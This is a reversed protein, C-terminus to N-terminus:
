PEMAPIAPPQPPRPTIVINSPNVVNITATYITEFRPYGVSVQIDFLVEALPFLHSHQPAFVATGDANDTIGTGSWTIYDDMENIQEAPDFALELSAFLSEVDDLHTLSLNINTNTTCTSPLLVDAQLSGTNNVGIEVFPDGSGTDGGFSPYVIMTQEACISCGSEYFGEGFGVGGGNQAQTCYAVFHQGPGMIFPDISASYGDNNDIMGAVSSFFQGNLNTGTNTYNNEYITFIPADTSMASIPNLSPNPLDFARTKTSTCGNADVVTFSWLNGKTLLLNLQTLM